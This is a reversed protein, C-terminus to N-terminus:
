TAASWNQRLQDIWGPGLTSMHPALQAHCWLDCCIMCKWTIPDLQLKGRHSIPGNHKKKAWTSENQSPAAWNPSLNLSTMPCCSLVTICSPVNPFWRQCERWNQCCIQWQEALHPPTGLHIKCMLLVHNSVSEVTFQLQGM